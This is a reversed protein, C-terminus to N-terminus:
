LVASRYIRAADARSRAGLRRLISGVHAEVTRVSIGLQIAASRDTEGASILALVQRERGTLAELPGGPAASLGADGAPEGIGAAALREPLSLEGRQAARVATLLADGTIDKTLYGAAGLRVAELLDRDAASVTLVVVRADPYRPRIDRLFELGSRGPLDLDLLVLDPRLRETMELADQYNGAEGVIAIDPSSLAQSVAARVLPHDDVLIIRAAVATQTTV